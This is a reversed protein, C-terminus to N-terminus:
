ILGEKNLIPLKKIIKAPVGAVLTNQPVTKVVVSGAGVVSGKQVSVGAIITSNIGIWVDDEIYINKLKGKGARREFGIEHTGTCIICQPAIDVRNAIIVKSPFSNYIKIDDGIWVDDGIDLNPSLINIRGSIKVNRGCQVGSLKLLM